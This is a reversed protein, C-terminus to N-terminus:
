PALPQTQPTKKFAARDFGLAAAKALIGDLVAADVAPKRALVWALERSPVGVLAWQYDPDLALVWYDGYFPRFFSVKLKANASGEVIKVFGDVSTVEGKDTRCRNKVSVEGSSLTYRAQTDAVCMAQFKNPLSALEYWAGMYRPLDVAAVTPLPAYSSSACGAAFASVLLITATARVRQTVSRTPPPHATNQPTM